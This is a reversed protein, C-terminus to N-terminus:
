GGACFATCTESGLDSVSASFCETGEFSDQPGFGDDILCAACAFSLGSTKQRCEVLCAERDDGTCNIQEDIM